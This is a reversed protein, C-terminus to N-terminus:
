VAEAVWLSRTTSVQAIGNTKKVFMVIIALLSNETSLVTGNIANGITIKKACLGSPVKKPNSNNIVKNVMAPLRKEEGLSSAVEERKM